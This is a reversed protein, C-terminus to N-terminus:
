AHGKAYLRVVRGSIRSGVRVEAGIQPKVAGIAHVTVSLDQRTVRSSPASSQESARNPMLLWATAAIAVLVILGSWARRTM